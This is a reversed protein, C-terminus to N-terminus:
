LGLLREVPGSLKSEDLVEDSEKVQRGERDLLWTHPRGKPLVDAQLKPVVAALVPMTRLTMSEKLDDARDTLAVVMLGDRGHRKALETLAGIQTMCDGCSNTFLTVLIVRGRFDKLSRVVPEGPVQFAIDLVPGRRLYFKHPNVLAFVLVALFVVM